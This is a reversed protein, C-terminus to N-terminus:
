HAVTTTVPPELIEGLAALLRDEFQKDEDTLSLVESVGTQTEERLVTQGAGRTLRFVRDELRFRVAPGKEDWFYEDEWLLEMRTGHDMREALFVKLNEIGESRESQVREEETRARM